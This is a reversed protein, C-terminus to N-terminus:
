PAGRLLSWGIYGLPLFASLMFSEHFGLLISNPSSGLVHPEQVTTGLSPLSAGCGKGWVKGERREM